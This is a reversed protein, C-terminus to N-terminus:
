QEILWCLIFERKRCVLRFTKDYCIAYVFLHAKTCHRLDSCPLVFNHFSYFGALIMRNFNYSCQSQTRIGTSEDRHHIQGHEKESQAYAPPSLSCVCGVARKARLLLTHPNPFSQTYTRSLVTEYALSPQGRVYILTVTYYVVDKKREKKCSEVNNVITVFKFSFM